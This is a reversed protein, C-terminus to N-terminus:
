PESGLGSRRVRPATAADSEPVRENRGVTRSRDLQNARAAPEVVGDFSTLFVLEPEAHHTGTGAWEVLRPRKRQFDDALLDILEQAVGTRNSTVLHAQTAPKGFVAPM